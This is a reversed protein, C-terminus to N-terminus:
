AKLVISQLQFSCLQIFFGIFILTKDNSTSQFRAGARDRSPDRAVDRAATVYRPLRPNFFSQRAGCRFCRLDFTNEGPTQLSIASGQENELGDWHVHVFMLQNTFTNNSFCIRSQRASSSKSTFSFPTLVNTLNSSKTHTTFM